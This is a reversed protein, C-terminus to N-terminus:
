IVALAKDLVAHALSVLQQSLTPELFVAAVDLGAVFHNESSSIGDSLFTMVTNLRTERQRGAPRDTQGETQGPSAARRQPSPSFSSLSPLKVLFAM